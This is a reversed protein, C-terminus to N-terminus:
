TTHIAFSLMNMGSFKQISRFRPARVAFKRAATAADDVLHSEFLHVLCAHGPQRKIVKPLRPCFHLLITEASDEGGRGEEEVLNRQKEGNRRRARRRELGNTNIM